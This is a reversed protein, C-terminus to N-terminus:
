YRHLLKSDSEARGLTDLNYVNADWKTCLSNFLRQVLKIMAQIDNEAGIGTIVLNIM